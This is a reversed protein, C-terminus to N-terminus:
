DVRAGTRKVVDAWKASEKRVFAAFQEATGGVPEYGLAALRERATPATLAKNIESNLRTVIARPTGSPVVIGSWATSSYGPVGSDSVTPLDPLASSRQLSTVALGRVRGAKVQPVMVAMNEHMVSVRGASLDAVAQVSAKYPVHILPAGSMLRFLEMSVHQTSGNGTSAYSLKDPNAKAYQVLETISKVPLSPAVAIVNPANIIQVVKEFDKDPNYPLKGLVYQNLSLVTQSGHAITYGDPAARAVLEMGIVGSAGPRNDVVVSQGMQRSLEIAVLRAITDPAGGAAAAVIYRIPRAPYEAAISSTIVASSFLAVAM